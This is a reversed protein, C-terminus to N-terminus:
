LVHRWEAQYGLGLNLIRQLLDNYTMHGAYVAEHFEEDRGLDANPNAEIVFPEGAETLRFDIRAYGSLGLARYVRKALRVLREDLEEPLQAPKIRIQRKKQYKWDWKVKSTAIPEIGPALKGFDLEIIPFATLRQNGLLAVYVERGPIYEEAIADLDFTEHLYHVRKELKEETDVISAQALGISGDSALTKVMLPFRLRRPKRVVRGRPFVGFAPGPIRHFSMLKRSLAKDRSLMLGRPNCGTYPRRLLEFYSAVYQNYSPITHFAELLNFVIHPDFAEIAAVIPALDSSVGLPHVEHGLERLGAQVDFETKWPVYQDLPVKAVGEPPILDEHMLTLVRLRKM